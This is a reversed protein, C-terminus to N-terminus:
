EEGDLGNDTDAGAPPDATPDPELVGVTSLEPRFYKRVVDCVDSPTVAAVKAPYDNWYEFRAVTEMLGLQVSQDITTEFDGILQTLCQNRARVVEEESPGTEQLRRLEEFLVAEADAAASGPQLEARVLFLYPDVTEDFETTVLSAVRTEEILRRYLRALKGDSLIKDLIEVPFHDPDGASPAPFAVLLRELSTPRQLRLRVQELREPESPIRLRPINQNPIDGFYKEVLRLVQNRNFDGCICLVANPPSYYSRYFDVMRDLTLREVDQRDGIVPHRYPHVEFAHTEVAQRLAGWPSDLEMWLEELIVQRELEFEEPDFLNRCMRDAEIELATEWRDSAFSFYYATYDRSTFANNSGGNITTLYDIEGKGYRETGKFMMHELFHSIGTIGPTEYRSGVRYWIMTTVIPVSHDERTLVTLGNSLTSRRVDHALATPEQKRIGAM